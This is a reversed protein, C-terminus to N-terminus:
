CFFHLINHNQLSSFSFGLSVTTFVLPVHCNTHSRLLLLLLFLIWCSTFSKLTESSCFCFLCPAMHLAVTLPSHHFHIWPLPPTTSCTPHEDFDLLLFISLRLYNWLSFYVNTLLHLLSMFSLSFPRTPCWCMLLHNCPADVFALFTEFFNKPLPLVGKVYMSLENDLLRSARNRNWKRNIHNKFFIRIFCHLPYFTEQAGLEVKCVVMAPFDLHIFRFCSIVNRVKGTLCLSCHMCARVCAQAWDLIGHGSFPVGCLQAIREVDILIM